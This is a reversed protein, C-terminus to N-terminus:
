KTIFKSLISFLNLCWIFNSSIGKETRINCQLNPIKMLQPGITEMIPSVDSIYRM